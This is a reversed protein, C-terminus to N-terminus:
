RGLYGGDVPIVAGNIYDSASSALLITIGKMDTGTGWRKQPIRALIDASRVPDSLLATNLQTAMYGPAIANVNIGKYAWDNSLSKTLQGVGGKSAVYAPIQIGGCFSMISAVNIIKGGGQPIMTNAALQCYFFVASLNVAIVDDWDKEPFEESKYRRQIGAANVLIDLHGGLFRLADGYSSIIQDRDSIDARVPNVDFGKAALSGAVDLVTESVDIVVAQAGAELLSELMCVGLDGAGGVVIAKKGSLDFIELM